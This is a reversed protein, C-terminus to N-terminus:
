PSICNGYMIHQPKDYNSVRFVHLRRTNGYMIHQPKDLYSNTTERTDFANGYM